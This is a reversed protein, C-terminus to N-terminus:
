SCATTFAADNWPRRIRLRFLRDVEDVSVAQGILSLFIPKPLRQDAIEFDEDMAHVRARLERDPNEEMLARILRVNGAALADDFLLKRNKGAPVPVDATILQKLGDDSNDALVSRWAETYARGIHM